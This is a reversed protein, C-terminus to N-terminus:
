IKSNEKNYKSPKQGNKTATPKKDEYVKDAIQKEKIQMIQQLFLDEKGKAQSSTHL